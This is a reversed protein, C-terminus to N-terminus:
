GFLRKVQTASDM